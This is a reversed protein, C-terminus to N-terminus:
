IKEHRCRWLTVFWLGVTIISVIGMACQTSGFTRFFQKGDKAIAGYVSSLRNLPQTYPRSDAKWRLVLSADPCRTTYSFRRMQAMVPIGDKELCLFLFSFRGGLLQWNQVSILHVFRRLTGAHRSTFGRSVGQTVPRAHANSRGSTHSICNQAPRKMYANKCDQRLARPIQVTKNVIQEITEGRFGERGAAGPFIGSAM